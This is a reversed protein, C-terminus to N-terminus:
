SDGTVQDEAPEPLEEDATTGIEVPTTSFHAPFFNTYTPPRISMVEPSIQIVTGDAWFHVNVAKLHRPQLEPLAGELAFIMLSTESPYLFGHRDPAGVTIVLTEIEPKDHRDVLRRIQSWASQLDHDTQYALGLEFGMALYFFSSPSGGRMPTALFHAGRGSDRKGVDGLQDPPGDIVQGVSIEPDFEYNKLAVVLADVDEDSEQPFSSLGQHDFWLYITAGMLHAFDERPSKLLRERLRRFLAQAQMREAISFRTFDLGHLGKDTEVVFDPPEEGRRVKGMIPIGRRLDDTRLRELLLGEEQDKSIPRPAYFIELPSEYLFCFLSAGDSVRTASAGMGGPVGWPTPGFAHAQEINIDEKVAM